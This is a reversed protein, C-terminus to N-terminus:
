SVSIGAAPRSDVSVGPRRSSPAKAASPQAPEVLRASAALVPQSRRPRTSLWSGALILPLGAAMGWGPREGLVAVGCATAVLPNLYTIVVARSPGAEAILVGYLVLAAATCLLGLGLLALLASPAPVTQPSRVAVFPTLMLAAILLGGGMSARPDLDVLLRRYVLPSLAYCFAAALIALAGLLQDPRTSVDIGFLAVVGVFGLVLGILGRGSAREAARATLLAVFLPATAVVIAALSSTVRQEGYGILPFPLAIEVLAYLALARLRGRMAALVRAQRALVLLVAAGIVVRVWAVSGPTVGNDVAVKILLFPIGWLVSVAFFAARGRTSVLRGWPGLAARV